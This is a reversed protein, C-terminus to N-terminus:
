YEFIESQSIEKKKELDYYRLVDQREILYGRKSENNIFLLKHPMDKLLVYQLIDKIGKDTKYHSIIVAMKPETEWTTVVDKKWQASTEVELACFVSGSRNLWVADLRAGKNEFEREIIFGLERGIRVLAEIIKDAEKGRVEDSYKELNEIIYLCCKEIDTEIAKNKDFLHYRRVAKENADFIILNSDCHLFEVIDEKKGQVIIIEPKLKEITKDLERHQDALLTKMKPMYFDLFGSFIGTEHWIDSFEIGKKHLIGKLLIKDFTPYHSHSESYSVGEKVIANECCLKDIRKYCDECFLELNIINGRQHLSNTLPIGRDSIFHRREDKRTLIVPFGAQESDKLHRCTSMGYFELDSLIPYFIKKKLDSLPFRFVYEIPAEKLSKKDPVVFNEYPDEGRKNEIKDKTSRFYIEKKNSEIWTIENEKVWNLFELRSKLTQGGFKKVEVINHVPCESIIEQPLTGDLAIQKQVAIKQSIYDDLIPKMKDFVLHLPTESPLNNEKAM